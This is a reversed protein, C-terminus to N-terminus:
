EREKGWKKIFREVVKEEELKEYKCDLILPSTIIVEMTLAIPPGIDNITFPHKLPLPTHHSHSQFYNGSWYIHEAIISELCQRAVSLYYSRAIVKKNPFCIVLHSRSPTAYYSNIFIMWEIPRFAAQPRPKPVFHAINNPQLGLGLHIQIDWPRVIGKQIKRSKAIKYICM